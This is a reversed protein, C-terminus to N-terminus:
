RVNKADEREKFLKEPNDLLGIIKEIVNQIPQHLVDYPDNYNVKMKKLYYKEDEIEGKFKSSGNKLLFDILNLVNLIRRSNSSSSSLKSLISDM